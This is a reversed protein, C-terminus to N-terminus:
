SQAPQILVAYLAKPGHVGKVIRKEIDATRSPGTVFTVPNNAVIDAGLASMLAALDPVIFDVRLLVVNVPPVLSLSRPRAPTPVLVLTGSAAVAYDAEVIGADCGALKARSEKRKEESVRAADLVAVNHRSLAEGLPRLDTRVGDGIAASKFNLVQALDLVADIAAQTSAATLAKGGLAELERVFQASLEERGPASAVPLPAPQPQAEDHRSPAVVAQRLAVRMTGMAAAFDSM